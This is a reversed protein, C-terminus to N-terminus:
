LSLSFDKLSLSFSLSFISLYFPESRDEKCAPDLQLAFFLVLLVKFTSNPPIKFEIDAINIM